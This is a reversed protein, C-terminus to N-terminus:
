KGCHRMQQEEGLQRTGALAISPVFAATVITACVMALAVANLLASSAHRRHAPQEEILQGLRETVRGGGLAAFGLGVVPEALAAKCIASALAYRDNRQLSWRDADRELHFALERLATRSGPVIRGISRCLEAFVLLFRHRRAIHGHEHDLGAALEDDDLVILAGASVVVQPRALGAAALMVDPGPVIVSERPGSGLANNALLGRVSRAARVIGFGVSLLSTIVLLGPLITAADGVQHGDLGLHAAVLPLVTHWCWHTLSSFAATSPLFFVLYLTLFLVSLARLTLSVTWLTAATAPSSRELRLCHPLVIGAIVLPALAVTM